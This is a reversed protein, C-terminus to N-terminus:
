PLQSGRDGAKPLYCYSAGKDAPVRRVTRTAHVRPRLNPPCYQVLRHCRQLVISPTYLPCSPATSTATIEVMQQKMYGRVNGEILVGLMFSETRKTPATQAAAKLMDRSSRTSCSLRASPETITLRATGALSLGPARGRQRSASFDQCPCPDKSPSTLTWWGLYQWRKIPSQSNASMQFRHLASGSEGLYLWCWLAFCTMSMNAGLWSDMSATLLHSTLDPTLSSPM